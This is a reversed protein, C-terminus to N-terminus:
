FLLFKLIILFYFLISILILVYANEISCRLLKNEYGLEQITNEIMDIVAEKNKITEKQDSFIQSNINRCARKINEEDVPCLTREDKLIREILDYM